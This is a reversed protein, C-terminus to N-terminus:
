KENNEKTLFITQTPFAFEIGRARFESYIAINIEQQIDMYKAYDSGLV